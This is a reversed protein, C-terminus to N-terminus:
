NVTKMQSKNAAMQDAVTIVNNIPRIVSTSGCHIKAILKSQENALELLPCMTSCATRTPTLIPDKPKEGAATPISQKMMGAQVHPCLMDTGNRQLIYDNDSVARLSNENKLEM